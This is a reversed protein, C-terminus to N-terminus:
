LRNYNILRQLGVLNPATGLDMGVSLVDLFLM